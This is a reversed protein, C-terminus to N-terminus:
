YSVGELPENDALDLANIIGPRAWVTVGKEFIGRLTEKFTEPIDGNIQCEQMKWYTFHNMVMASTPPFLWRNVYYGYRLWFDGITRIYSNKIRKFKVMVGFLGQSANFTDGGNQGSTSPQTVRADQVKAQIGQIAVEYDGKAAFEAYAKNKDAAYGQQLMQNQAINSQNAINAALAQNNWSQNYGINIASMAANTVGSLAAAPGGGSMAGSVAGIGSSIVGEVGQVMAKENQIGTMAQNYDINSQLNKATTQIASQSVDYATQAANLAKQQSWDASAFQYSRSNATSAMYMIYMNNVLSLSPFNDFCIALDLNEGGYLAVIDGIEPSAETRSMIGRYTNGNYFMPYVYGRIGPMAFCFQFDFNLDDRYYTGTVHKSPNGEGIRVDFDVTVDESQMCEPKLIIEGGKYATIEIISYPSTYFKYLHKYREPFDFSDRWNSIPPVLKNNEVVGDMKYIPISNVYVPNGIEAFMNMPVMTINTICQSVWPYNSLYNMLDLFDGYRLIYCECGGPVGDVVMGRASTVNATGISGYDADLAATSQILVYYNIIQYGPIENDFDNGYVFSRWVQEVTEYEDGYNLGEPELLYDATNYVTSKENAIGIHGKSVYCLGFTVRDFYTTWVDLQINLQTTNPAIYQIDTIFYYFVDPQAKPVGKGWVNSQVPQMKNEVVIYNFQNAISFPVNIRIPESYRLYVMGSLEVRYNSSRSAFYADREEVTGFQVINRYASDWPVNTLVVETNPTWVRYDFYSEWANMSGEDPLGPFDSM